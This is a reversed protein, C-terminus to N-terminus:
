PRRRTTRRRTRHTRTSSRTSSRSRRHIRFHRRSYTSNGYGGKSEPRERVLLDLLPRMYQNESHLITMTRMRIGPEPRNMVSDKWPTRDEDFDGGKIYTPKVSPNRIREIYLTVIRNCAFTYLQRKIGVKELDRQISICSSLVRTVLKYEKKLGTPSSPDRTYYFLQSLKSSTFSYGNDFGDLGTKLGDLTIDKVDQDEDSTFIRRVWEMCFVTFDLVIYSAVLQNDAMNGTLQETPHTFLNRLRTCIDTETTFTSAGLLFFDIMAKYCQNKIDPKTGPNFDYYNYDIYHNGIIEYEIEYTNDQLLRRLNTIEPLEESTAM